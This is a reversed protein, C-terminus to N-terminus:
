GKWELYKWIGWFEDGYKGRGWLIKTSVGIWDIDEGSKEGLEESGKCSWLRSSGVGEESTAIGFDENRSVVDEDWEGNGVEDEEEGEAIDSSELRDGIEVRSSGGRQREL